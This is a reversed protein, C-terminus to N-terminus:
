RAARFSEQSSVIMTNKLGHLGPQRRTLALLMGMAVSMGLLSSGGYSLFPLTIGKAPLLGVNVGANILAQLSFLMVLGLAAIRRFEDREAWLRVLARLCVFVFLGILVLCAIIGYEEAIVALIFDTHADPLVSKITGEGPGRGFWGGQIFSDFARDMQYTDSAAPNIFADIRRQVHPFNHYAAAIAILALGILGIVWRFSIGCVFLLGGWVATLLLAQGIDPQLVLMGVTLLYLVVAFTTAPVDPRRTRESLLWASLVLFAPKLFESPQLSLGALRVWRHAGNIEPGLWLAAAMLVSSLVYLGLSLRRVGAPNLLSVVFVLVTSLVAFLLHRQVFHYHALGKKDAVTPGAALSLLIGAALLVLIGTFLPRDVTFWWDSVRSRDSRSVKM